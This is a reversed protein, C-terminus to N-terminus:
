SELPLSSVLSRCQLYVVAASSYPIRGIQVGCSAFISYTIDFEFYERFDASFECRKSLIQKTWPKVPLRLDVQVWLGDLTNQGSVKNDVSRGFARIMDKPYLAATTSTRSAGFVTLSWPFSRAMFNALMLSLSPVTLVFPDEWKAQSVPACLVVAGYDEHDM